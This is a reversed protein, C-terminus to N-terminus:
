IASAGKPQALIQVNSGTAAHRMWLSTMGKDSVAHVVYRGDPSIAAASAKGSDTLRIIEM